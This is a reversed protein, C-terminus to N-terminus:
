GHREPYVEDFRVYTKRPHHMPEFYLVEPELQEILDGDYIRDSGVNQGAADIAKKFAAKSPFSGSIRVQTVHKPQELSRAARHDIVEATYTAKIKPM